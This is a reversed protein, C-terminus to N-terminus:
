TKVLSSFLRCAPPLLHLLSSKNRPVRWFRHAAPM